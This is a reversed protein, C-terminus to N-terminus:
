RKSCKSGGALVTSLGVDNGVGLYRHMMPNRLDADV